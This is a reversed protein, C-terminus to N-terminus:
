VNLIKMFLIHYMMLNQCQNFELIKTNESPVIIKCFDKKECVEKHSKHKPKAAFSRFCNLFHFIGHHKSM